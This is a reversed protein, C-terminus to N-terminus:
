PLFVRSLIAIISALSRWISLLLGFGDGVSVVEDSVNDVEDRGGACGDSGTLGGGGSGSWRCCDNGLFGAGMADARGCRRTTADDDRVVATTGEVALDTVCTCRLM